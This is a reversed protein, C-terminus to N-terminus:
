NLVGISLVLNMFESGFRLWRHALSTSTSILFGDASVSLVLISIGFHKVSPRLRIKRLSFSFTTSDVGWRFSEATRNFSDFVKLRAKLLDLTRPHDKFPYSVRDILSQKYKEVGKLYENEDM